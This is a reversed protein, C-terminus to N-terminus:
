NYLLATLQPNSKEYMRIMIGAESNAYNEQSITNFGQLKINRQRAFEHVWEHAITRLIDILMRGGALVKIRGLIESGTTMKGFREGLLQIDVDKKLPSNKQCFKLFDQIVNIQESGLGSSKDYLNVKM